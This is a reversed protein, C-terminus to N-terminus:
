FFQTRPGQGEGHGNWDKAELPSDEFLRDKAESKKSDKSGAEFPADEVGGRSFVTYFLFCPNNLQISLQILTYNHYKSYRYIADKLYIKFLLVVMPTALIKSQPPLGCNVHLSTM